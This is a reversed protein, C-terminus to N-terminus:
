EAMENAQKAFNHLFDGLFTIPNAPRERAVASLAALLAPVVTVDLYQRVPAKQLDIKSATNNAGKKEGKVKTAEAQVPTAAAASDGSLLAAMAAM